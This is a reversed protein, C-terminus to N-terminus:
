NEVLNDFTYSELHQQPLQNSKDARFRAICLDLHSRWANLILM